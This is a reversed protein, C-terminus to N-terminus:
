FMKRACKPTRIKPKNFKYAHQRPFFYIKEWKLHSLRSHCFPWCVRDQVRHDSGQPGPAPERIIRDRSKKGESTVPVLHSPFLLISTAM